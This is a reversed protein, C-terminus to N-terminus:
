HGVSHSVKLVAEGLPLAWYLRSGDDGGDDDRDGTAPIKFRNRSM